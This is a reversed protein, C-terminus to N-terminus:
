PGHDDAHVIRNRGARKARYLAVDAAGILGEAGDVLGGLTAAGISVTVGRRVWSATGIAARCREATLRAGTGDTCPLIIAFEEGGYRAVMDTFRATARLLSAVNVLVEDGAPHGFCDNFEKFCDVDVLLLSLEQKYRGARALEHQLREDFVRRNALRTLGDTRSLGKIRSLLLETEVAARKREADARNLLLATWFTLAVLSISSVGSSLAAGSADDLWGVREGLRVTWTLLLPAVLAFPFLRRAVFGGAGDSLLLGVPGQGPRLGTMGGVLAILSLATPLSMGTVSDSPMSTLPTAGSAYGVIAVFPIAIGISGMPVRVRAATRGRLSACGIALALCVLALATHPAPRGPHHGGNALVRAPFLLLDLSPPLAFVYEALCWLAAAAVLGAFAWCALSLHRSRSDVLARRALLLAAVLLLLLCASLPTMQPSSVPFRRLSLLDLAWGTLALLPSLSAFGCWLLTRALLARASAGGDRATETGLGM